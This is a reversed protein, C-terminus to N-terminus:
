GLAQIAELVQAPHRPIDIKDFIGRIIGQKDILFGSGLGRMASRGSRGKVKIM